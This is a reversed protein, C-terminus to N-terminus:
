IVKEKHPDAGESALSNLTQEIKLARWGQAVGYPGAYVPVGEAELIATSPTDLPIFDGVQISLLERLTLETETLLGRVTVRSDKVGEGLLRALRENQTPHEQNLSALLPGRVSELMTCPLVLHLTGTLNGITIKLSTVALIESSNIATLCQPNSEAGLHTCQVPVLPQWAAELSRFVLNLLRQILRTETATFNRFSLPSYLRGPGGFFIDVLAFVLQQEFVLLGPGSLPSIGILNISCPATLSTILNSYGHLEIAGGVVEVTRRLLELLGDQLRYVFREHITELIPLIGTIADEPSVLQYPLVEEMGPAQSAVGVRGRAEGALLADIEDRTLLENTAM